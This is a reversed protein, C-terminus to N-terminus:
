NHPKECLMGPAEWPKGCQVCLIHFRLAHGEWLLWQSRPAHHPAFRGVWPGVYRGSEGDSQIQNWKIEVDLMYGDFSLANQPEAQITTM